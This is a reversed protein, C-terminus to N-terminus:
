VRFSMVVDIEEGHEKVYDHMRRIADWASQNSAWWQVAERVDELSAQECLSSLLGGLLKACQRPSLKSPQSKCTPDKPRCLPCLNVDGRTLLYCGCATCHTERMGSEILARAIADGAPTASDYDEIGM